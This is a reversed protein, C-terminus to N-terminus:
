SYWNGTNVRCEELLFSIKLRAHRGIGGCQRRVYKYFLFVVLLRKTFFTHLRCGSKFRHYLNQLGRGEWKAIGGIIIFCPKAGSYLLKAEACIFILNNVNLLIFASSPIRVRSRWRPLTIN